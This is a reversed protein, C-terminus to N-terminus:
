KKRMNTRRFVPYFVHEIPGRRAILTLRKLLRMGEITFTPLRLANTLAFHEDSLVEFPVELRTVMEQQYATSQTSVGYVDAELRALEKHHDRFGCTEPTCGRAGTIEESGAPLAKDPRGTMPYFYVVTRPATLKALTVRRNGTSALEVNPLAMGKLHRAGGDDKPRPLNAPLQNLNTQQDMAAKLVTNKLALAFPLGLLGRRTRDMSRVGAGLVWCRCRGLRRAPRGQAGAGSSSRRSNLDVWVSKVQTYHELAHLGMERGFGSQKYGGFPAATDYVNYTNIWVTGAQLKRAVYHAKKIDRTWVAAALGYSSENARAIAEDVDAFEIAALVPGFIEERAITMEPTVGAFVTPQLFYGKGTGIDAREGGAM